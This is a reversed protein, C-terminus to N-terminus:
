NKSEPLGIEKRIKEIFENLNTGEWTNWLFKGTDDWSSHDMKRSKYTSFREFIFQLVQNWTHQPIGPYTKELDSNTESGLFFLSCYFSSDEFAGHEYISKAVIDIKSTEFPGLDGLLAQINEKTPDSWPGNLQCVSTKVEAIVFYSKGSARTFEPMDVDNDKSLEQRHPFRIGVIDADTRASGKRLPHIIFSNITFFGNLRFYWLALQEATM